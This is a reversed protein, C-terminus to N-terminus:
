KKHFQTFFWRWFPGEEGPRKQLRTQYTGRATEWEKAQALVPISGSGEYSPFRTLKGEWKSSLTTLQDRLMKYRPNSTRHHKMKQTLVYLRRSLAGAFSVLSPELKTPWSKQLRSAATNCLAILREENQGSLHRSRLFALPLDHNSKPWRGRLTRLWPTKEGALAKLTFFRFFSDPRDLSGKLNSFEYGLLVKTWPLQRDFWIKMAKQAVLNLAFDPASLAGSLLFFAKPDNSFALTYLAIWNTRLDSAALAYRLTRLSPRATFPKARNALQRLRKLQTKPLRKWRILATALPTPCAYPKPLACLKELASLDLAYIAQEQHRWLTSAVLSLPLNRSTSLQKLVTSLSGTILLELNRLKKLRRQAIKGAKTESFAVALLRLANPSPHPGLKKLEQAGLLEMAPKLYIGAPFYDLYARLGKSSPTKLLTQWWRCELTERVKASEKAAPHYHLFRILPWVKRTALAKQARRRTLLERAQTAHRGKPFEHLFTLIPATGHTRKVRLFLLRELERTAAFREEENGKTNEYLFARYSQPTHLTKARKYTMKPPGCSVLLPFFLTPLLPIRM